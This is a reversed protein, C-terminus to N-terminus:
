NPHSDSSNTTLDSRSYKSGITLSLVELMLLLADFMTFYAFFIVLNILGMSLKSCSYLNFELSPVIKNHKASAKSRIGSLFVISRKSSSLNVETSQFSWVPNSLPIYTFAEEQAKKRVPFIKSLFSISFCCKSSVYM